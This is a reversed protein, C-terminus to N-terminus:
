FRVMKGAAQSRGAELRYLYIGAPLEQGASDRGDWQLLNSGRCGDEGLVAVRQGRLNYVSLSVPGPERLSFEFSTGARFPNPRCSLDSIQAGPAQPDVAASGGSQMLGAYISRGTYLQNNYCHRHDRWSLYVQNGYGSASLYYQNLAEGCYVQIGAPDTVGSPSVQLSYVNFNIGYYYGYGDPEGCFFISYWGNAHHYMKLEDYYNMNAPLPVGDIRMFPSGTSDLRVLHLMPSTTEPIYTISSGDGFSSDGVLLYDPTSVLLVGGDGWLRLGGPSMKQAYLETSTNERKVFAVMDGGDMGMGVCTYSGAGESLLTQPPDSWGPLTNGNADVLRAHCHRTDQNLYTSWCFWRNKLKVQSIGENSIDITKGGEEWMPQSDVYRQAKLLYRTPNSITATWAVYVEGGSCDLVPSTLNQGLFVGAGALQQEGEADVIQLYYNSASGYLSYIIAAQTDNLRQAAHILQSATPTPELLPKGDAQLYTNLASDCIQFRITYGGSRQDQWFTIFRGDLAVSRHTDCWGGLVSEFSVGGAPLQPAGDASLIQRKLRYEEEEEIFWIYNSSGNGGFCVPAIIQSALADITVGSAGWLMEGALGIKQATIVRSNDQTVTVWACYVNQADDQRITFNGIGSEPSLIIGNPDWLPAGQTDLRQLRTQNHGSDVNYGWCVMLGGDQLPLLIVNNYLPYPNGSASPLSLVRPQPFQPEGQANFKQLTVVNPNADTMHMLFFSDDHGAQMVYTSDPFDESGVYPDSGVQVGWQDFRLLRNYHDNTGDEYLGLNVILRGSSLPMANQAHLLSDSAVLTQGDPFWLDNHAADISKGKLLHTSGSTETWLLYAGGSQNPLVYCYSDHLEAGEATWLPQGQPSLLQGWTQNQTGTDDFVRYSVLYSGATTLLVDEVYQHGAKDVVHCPENWLPTGDAAFRQAYIDSDGTRTSSWVVIVGGDPLSVHKGMYKLDYAQRLAVSQQAYLAMGFGALLVAAMVLAILKGRM